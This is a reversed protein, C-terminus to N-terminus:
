AKPPPPDPSTVQSLPTRMVAPEIADHAPLVQALRTGRESAANVACSTMARCCQPQTPTDCPQETGSVRVNSAAAMHEHRASGHEHASMARSGHQACTVDAGVFTLHLMMVALMFGTLRRVFMTRLSTVRPFDHLTGGSGAM